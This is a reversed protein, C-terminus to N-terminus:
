TDIHTHTHTHTHIYIYINGRSKAENEWKGKLKYLLTGVKKGETIKNCCIKITHWKKM